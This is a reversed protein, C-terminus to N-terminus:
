AFGPLQGSDGAVGLRSDEGGADVSAGDNCSGTPLKERLDPQVSIVRLETQRHQWGTDDPHIPIAEINSSATERAADSTAADVFLIRRHTVSRYADVQFRM